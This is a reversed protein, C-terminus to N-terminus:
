QFDKLGDSVGAAFKARNDYLYIALPVLFWWGGDISTADTSNLEEVGLTNTNLTNKMKSSKSNDLSRSSRNGSIQRTCNAEASFWPRINKIFPQTAVTM